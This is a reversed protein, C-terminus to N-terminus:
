PKTVYWISGCQKPKGFRENVAKMVGPWIDSYDHGCFLGGSRVAPYWLDIDRKVTEYLHTVDLFVMDVYGGGIYGRVHNLADASEARIPVVKGVRIEGFLNKHFEDCLIDPGVRKAELTTEDNAEYECGKWHDVAFVVWRAGVALAKTSRGKWSGVEVITQHEQSRAALWELEGRSMWGQIGDAMDVAISTKTVGRAEPHLPAGRLPNRGPFLPYKTLPDLVLDGPIETIPDLGREIMEYNKWKLWSALRSKCDGYHFVLVDDVITSYGKEWASESDQGKYVIAHIKGRYHYGMGSKFIKGQYDPFFHTDWHEHDGKFNVRPTVIYSVGERGSIGKIREVDDPLMTEDADLLFVWDGKSNDVIINKPAAFDWDFIGPYPLITGGYGKVVDLTGDTSGTDVVV